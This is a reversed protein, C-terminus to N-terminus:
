AHARTFSIGLAVAAVLKHIIIAIMLRISSDVDNQVGIAIGEFISHVSLAFLLLYASLSDDKPAHQHVPKDKTDLLQTM